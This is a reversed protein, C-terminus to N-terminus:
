SSSLTAASKGDTDPGSANLATGAHIIANTIVETLLLEVDDRLGSLGLIHLRDAAFSRASALIAPDPPYLRRALDEGVRAIGPPRPRDGEASGADLSPAPAGVQRADELKLDLFTRDGVVPVIKGARQMLWMREDVARALLMARYMAIVDDDGLGLEAHRAHTDTAM